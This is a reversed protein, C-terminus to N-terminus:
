SFISPAGERKGVKRHGVWCGWPKLQTAAQVECEALILLATSM